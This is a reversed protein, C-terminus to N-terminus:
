KKFYFEGELSTRYNPAQQDKSRKKVEVRTKKFVSEVPQPIMMQKVLEETYLGNASTGDIATFGEDTAFAVITGNTPTVVKFGQAGGRTWSRYPNNRCADLIVINTNDPYKAFEETVFDVSIAEYKCDGPEKLPADTPILYNRGDIQIGHGAFYFLAVNYESLRNSFERVADSMAKLGANTRKIVEFGLQKLTAEMLNADNVPNKLSTKEDYDANGIVLALRKETVALQYKITRKESRTSGASNIAYVYITNDGEKLIVSSQWKYNCNDIDSVQFVTSEEQPNGNVLIRASKLETASKICAEITFQDSSVISNEYVPKGWSVVPAEAPPNTFYRLDSKNSAGELNTAILYVNNDGPNLMISKEVIYTANEDPSTRIEGEGKSAGNVYFLVSKLDSASKVKARVRVSYTDLTTTIGSPSVWNVLPSSSVGSAVPENIKSNVAAASVPPVNSPPNESQSKIESNKQIERSATLPGTKGPLYSVALYDISISSNLGVNFGIQDGEPKVSNYTGILNENIFLFLNDNVKRLTIKNYSGQVVANVSRSFIKENEEKSPTNRFITLKNNDSIEIRYHDLKSNIGFALGGTGRITKIAAEIEYDRGPEIRITHYSLGTARQYNKCDLNYYGGAVSGKIWLNDLFWNNSNDDFSDTFVPVKGTSPIDSYSIQCFGNILYANLLVSFILLFKKTKM